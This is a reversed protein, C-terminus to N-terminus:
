QNLLNTLFNGRGVQGGHVDTTRNTKPDYYGKTQGYQNQVMSRGGPLDVIRGILKGHKDFLNSM